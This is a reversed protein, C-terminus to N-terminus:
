QAGKALRDRNRRLDLSQQCALALQKRHQTITQRMATLDAQLTNMLLDFLIM